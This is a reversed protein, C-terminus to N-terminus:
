LAEDEERQLLRDWYPERLDPNELVFLRINLQRVSERLAGIAEDRERDGLSSVYINGAVIMLAAVLPVSWHPGQRIKMAVLPLFQRSGATRYPPLRPPLHRYDAGSIACAATGPAHRALLLNLLNLYGPGMQQVFYQATSDVGPYQLRLTNHSLFTIALQEGTAYTGVFVLAHQAQQQTAGQLAPSPAPLTPQQLSSGSGSGVCIDFISCLADTALPVLTSALDDDQAQVSGAAVAVLVIVALPKRNM